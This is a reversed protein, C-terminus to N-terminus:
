RGDLTQSRRAVGAFLTMPGLFERAVQVARETIKLTVCGVRGVGDPEGDLDASRVRGTARDAANVPVHHDAVLHFVDGRIRGPLLNGPHSGNVRLTDDRDKALRFEGVVDGTKFDAFHVAHIAVVTRRM